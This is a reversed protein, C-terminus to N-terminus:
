TKRVYKWNRAKGEAMWEIATLLRKQRTEDRKAETIWEIYERRHSPSFAEFTARAKASKKLAAALDVPAKPPKKSVTKARSEKVGAENLAVAEKIYQVLVREAPLDSVGGVKVVCMSAKPGSTFLGHPDKMLRSKWFGFSVHRKFAAMGGVMGKCAFHPVGWKIEEEIQPCAKHYARRVRELVPRAFDASRAIYADVQASAGAAAKKTEATKSKIRIFSRTRSAARVAPKKKTKTNKSAM